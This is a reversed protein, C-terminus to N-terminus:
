KIKTNDLESKDKKYKRFKNFHKIYKETRKRFESLM